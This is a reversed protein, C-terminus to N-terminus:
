RMKASLPLLRSQVQQVDIGPFERRLYNTYHLTIKM